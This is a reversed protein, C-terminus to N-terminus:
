INDCSSSFLVPRHVMKHFASLMVMPKTLSPRGNHGTYVGFKMVTCLKRGECINTKLTYLYNAMVQCMCKEYIYICV